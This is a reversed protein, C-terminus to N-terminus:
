AGSLPKAQISFSKPPKLTSTAGIGNGAETQSSPDATNPRIMIPRRREPLTWTYGSTAPENSNRRQRHRAHVPRPLPVSRFATWSARFSLPNKASGLDPRQICGSFRWARMGLGEGLGEGSGRGFPSPTKFNPLLSNLGEGQPLPTPTLSHPPRHPTATM